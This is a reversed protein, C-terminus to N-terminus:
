QAFAKTAAELQQTLEAIFLAIFGGAQQKSWGAELFLIYEINSTIYVATAEDLDVGSLTKNVAASLDSKFEPYEGLPPVAETSETGLMWGSRARGTDVPTRQILRAFCNVVASLAMDWALQQSVQVFEVLASELKRVDSTQINELERLRRKFASRRRDIEDLGAGM